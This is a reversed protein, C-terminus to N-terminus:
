QIVLNLLSIFTTIIKLKKKIERAFPYDEIKLSLQFIEKDITKKNLILDIFDEKQMFVIIRILSLKKVFQNKKNNILKTFSKSIKNQKALNLTSQM